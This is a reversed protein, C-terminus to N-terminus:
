FLTDRYIAPVSARKSLEIMYIHSPLTFCCSFAIRTQLDHLSLVVQNELFRLIWSTRWMFSLCARCAWSILWVRSQEKASCWVACECQGHIFSKRKPIVDFVVSFKAQSISSCSRTQKEGGCIYWLNLVDCSVLVDEVSQVTPITATGVSQVHGYHHRRKMDCLHACPTRRVAAIVPCASCHCGVSCLVM